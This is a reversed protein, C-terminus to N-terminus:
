MELEFFASDCRRRTRAQLSGNCIYEAVPSFTRGDLQLM